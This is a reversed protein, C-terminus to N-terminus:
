KQKGYRIRRYIPIAFYIWILIVVGLRVLWTVLSIVWHSKAKPTSKLIVKKSAALEDALEAFAQVMAVDYKSQLSNSDKSGIFEGFNDLVKRSNYISKMDKSSVLVGVRGKADIGNKIVANPAFILIAYPKSLNGEYTGIYDYLSTGEKLRDTTAIAYEHIATKDTLEKSIYEIVNAAKPTILYDNKLFHAQLSFFLLCALLSVRAVAQIM